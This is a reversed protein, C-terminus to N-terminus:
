EHRVLETVANIRKSGNLEFVDIKWFVGSSRGLWKIRASQLSDLLFHM